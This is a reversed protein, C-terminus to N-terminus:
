LRWTAVVFWQHRAIARPEDDAARLEGAPSTHWTTTRRWTITLDIRGIRSGPPRQTAERQDASGADAWTPDFSEAETPDGTAATTDVTATEDDTIDEEGIPSADIASDAAALRATFALLALVVFVILWALRPRPQNRGQAVSRVTRVHRRRQGFVSERDEACAIERALVPDDNLRWLLEEAPDRVVHARRLRPDTVRGVLDSGRAGGELPHHGRELEEGVRWREHVRAPWKTLEGGTEHNGDVIRGRPDELRHAPGRLDLLRASAGAEREGPQPRRAVEDRRGTAVGRTGHRQHLHEVNGGLRDLLAPRPAAGVHAHQADIM